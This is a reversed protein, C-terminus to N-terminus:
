VTGHETGKPLGYMKYMTELDRVLKGIAVANTGQIDLIRGTFTKVWSLMENTDFFLGSYLYEHDRIKLIEGGHSERYLRNLIHPEREEDIWLKMYIEEMRSSGDFSVGWCHRM